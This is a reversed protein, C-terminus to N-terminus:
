GGMAKGQSSGPLCQTQSDHGLSIRMKHTLVTLGLCAVPVQGLDCMLLPQAPVLAWPGM